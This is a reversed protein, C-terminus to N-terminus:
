LELEVSKSLKTGATFISFVLRHKSLKEGKPIFFQMDNSMLVKDKETLDSISKKIKLKPNQNNYGDLIYAGYTNAEIKIIDGLETGAPHKSDYDSNSVVSISDISYAIATYGEMPVKRNYSTDKNAISLSDFLEISREYDKPNIERESLIVDGRQEHEVLIRSAILGKIEVRFSADTESYNPIAVVSLSEPMVYKTIMNKSQIGEEPGANEKEESSCSLFFAGNLFM